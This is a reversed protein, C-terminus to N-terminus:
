IKIQKLLPSVLKIRLRDLLVSLTMLVSIALLTVLVFIIINNNEFLARVNQYWPIFEFFRNEHILYVALMSGAYFNIVRSKFKFTTFYLFLLSAMAIQIPSSYPHLFERLIALLSGNAFYLIVGVLTSLCLYSILFVKRLHLRNENTVIVRDRYFAGLLYLFAFEIINKGDYLDGNRNLWGFYFLLFGLTSLILINGGGALAIIHTSRQKIYSFERAKNLLPSLLYLFIYIKMFWLWPASHSFPMFVKVLENVGFHNNGIEVWGAFLILNYFVMSLYLSVFGRVTPKIGFYGSILVFMIVGIHSLTYFSKIIPYDVEYNNLVYLFLHFVVIFFMSVIRLLEINSDRESKM